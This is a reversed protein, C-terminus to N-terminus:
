LDSHHACDGFDDNPSLHECDEYKDGEPRQELVDDVHVINDLLGSFFFLVGPGKILSSRYVKFQLFSIIHM